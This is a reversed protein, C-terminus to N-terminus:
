PLGGSHRAGREFQTRHGKDAGLRYFCQFPLMVFLSGTNLKRASSNSLYNFEEVTPM